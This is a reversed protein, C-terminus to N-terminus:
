IFSNRIKIKKGKKYNNLKSIIIIYRITSKQKRLNSHKLKQRIIRLKEGKLTKYKLFYNLLINKKESKSL